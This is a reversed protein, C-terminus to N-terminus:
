TQHFTDRVQEAAAIIEVFIMQVIILSKLHCFLLSFEDITTWLHFFLQSIDRPLTQSPDCISGVSLVMMLFM